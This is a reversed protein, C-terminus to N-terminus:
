KDKKRFFNRIRKFLGPKEDTEERKELERVERKLERIEKRNLHAIPLDKSYAPCDMRAAITDPIPKFSPLYKTRLKSSTEISKITKAVIPLAMHSGSGLATTRFRVSPWEAGVWAGAVLGPTFGIFWGDANDQTTGTKGALDCNLRYITRASRATGSDVVGQLMSVMMSGLSESFVREHYREETHEYVTDGQADEIRVISFPTVTQGYNAFVAYATVMELLSVDATGLALSPVEPLHSTIGSRQALQAVKEPGTNVMVEATITNLSNILGGQMSYFGDYNEDANGPSWGEYEEYVRKINAFYQCPDMGSQLATAYVFPKFTSGAQRTSIVHDYPLYQFNAGGIWALMAGSVPDLAFFGSNLLRIYHKLSDISSIETVKEGSHTYINRKHPISLEAIIEDYSKGSNQLKKYADSNRLAREFTKPHEKRADRGQWHRDFEDQLKKLQDGLAKEAYQQIDADITTYIRMGGTELLEDDGLIDILESKIYQMFYPALGRAADMLRYDLTIPQQILSDKQEESIFGQTHMRSLVVNRRKLANEPYLRPNYATNAALMGILTAAEDIALASSSKNYFRLSAAEIGYVNEGFSVTNLYLTLIEEKSYVDELGSAIFMERIKNIPLSLIHYERRPFLNKALQQSITSGGGQDKNGLLLSKFFVRALSIADIGHHEFFRNDETAVLAHRVYPSIGDNSISQRNVQYYKGMLTGDSALVLSANDQKVGRIEGAGPLKGFIGSYVGLVLFGMFIISAAVIILSLSLLFPRLRVSGKKKKKKKRKQAM